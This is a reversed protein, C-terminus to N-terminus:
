VHLTEMGSFPVRRGRTKLEPTQSARIRHIRMRRLLRSAPSELERPAYGGIAQCRAGRQSRVGQPATHCDGSFTHWAPEFLSGQFTPKNTLFILLNRIM